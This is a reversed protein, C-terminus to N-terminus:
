CLFFEGRTTPTAQLSLLFEGSGQTAGCRPAQDECVCVCLSVCVSVRTTPPHPLSLSRSTTTFRHPVVTSVLSPHPAPPVRPLNFHNTEGGRRLCGLSAHHFPADAQMELNSNTHHVDECSCVGTERGEMHSGQMWRGNSSSTRMEWERGIPTHQANPDLFVDM